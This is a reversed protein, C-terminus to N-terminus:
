QVPCGIATGSYIVNQENAFFSAGCFGGSPVMTLDFTTMEPNRMVRITYGRYTATQRDVIVPNEGALSVDSLLEQLLGYNGKGFPRNAQITLIMRM